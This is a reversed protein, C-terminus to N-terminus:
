PGTHLYSAWLAPADPRASRLRRVAKRLASAAQLTEDATQPAAQLARYFDRAVQPARLDSISWQTAIVHRFGAIHLGGALHAFEDALRAVGSATECASLFALEAATLRLATLDRLNIMDDTCHLAAGGPSYQAGHGAFHLWSHSQLLELVTDRNARPGVVATMAPFEERLAGIEATAHALESMGPANPVAIGLLATKGSTPRSIAELLARLTPAYSCVARDLLNTSPTPRPVDEGPRRNDPAPYVGAAHLPLLALAGTPCWWLRPEQGEAPKAPWALKTLVPDAIDNWLWALISRLTNNREQPATAEGGRVTTILESARANVVRRSIRELRVLLPSERTDATVVLADCRYRAINVIVVPGNRAAERLRDFPRPRLFGPVLARARELLHDWEAAAERRRQSELATRRASVDRVERDAGTAGARDLRRRVDDMARALDGDLARLEDLDTRADFAQALLVGRGQELLEVARALDEREVAVAAADSALGNVMALFHERDDRELGHWAAQPLLEIAYEYGRQAEEWRGDEAATAGWNGAAQLRVSLRGTPLRAAERFADIAETVHGADQLADGLLVLCGGRSEHDVPCRAVALRGVRVAEGLDGEQGLLQYRRHLMGNLNSLFKAQDPHDHSAADIAERIATIAAELDDLDKSESFRDLTVIALNCLNMPRRHSGRPTAEVALRATMVARDLDGRREHRGYSTALALSLNALYRDQRPHDAQVTGVAEACVDIAATLDAADGTHHFRTLLSNGLGSLCMARQAASLGSTQTAARKADIAAHLDDLAGGHEYRAQLASGLANLAVAKDPRGQRAGAVSERAFDVAATFYARIGTHQARIRLVGSAANLIVPRHPAGAPTDREARLAADAAAELDSTDGCDEFRCRLIESLTSRLLAIEDSGKSSLSIGRRVAEAAEDLDRAEATHEDYVTYLAIGQILLVRSLFASSDPSSRAVRRMLDVAARLDRADNTLHHRFMLCLALDVHASRYQDHEPHEALFSQYLDIAQGLDAQDDVLEGRRRLGGALCLLHSAHDPDNPDGEDIAHRAAEILDGVDASVETGEQEAVLVRHFLGKTLGGWAVARLPDSPRSLAVASRAMDISEDLVTSVRTERHTERLLEALHFRTIAASPHGPPTDAVADRTAELAEARHAPKGTWEYRQVLMQSLNDRRFPRREHGDRTAAVSRRGAAIAAELDPLRQSTRFRESHALALNSLLEDLFEDGLEEGEKVATASVDVAQDLASRDGTLQFWGRLSRGLETLCSPRYPSDPPLAEVLTSWLRCSM